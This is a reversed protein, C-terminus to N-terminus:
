MLRWSNMSAGNHMGGASLNCRFGRGDLLSLTLWGVECVRFFAASARGTAHYEGARWTRHAVRSTFPRTQRATANGESLTELAEPVHCVKSPGSPKLYSNCWGRPHLAVVVPSALELRPGGSMITPGCASRDLREPIVHFNARYRLFAAQWNWPHSYELFCRPHRLASFFGDGVAVGSAEKLM